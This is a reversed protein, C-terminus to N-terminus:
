TSLSDRRHSDHLLPSSLPVCFSYPTSAESLAAAASSARTEDLPASRQGRDGEEARSQVYQAVKM